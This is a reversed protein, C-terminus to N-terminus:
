ETWELCGLCESSSSSVAKRMSASSFCSRYERRLSYSSRSFYRLWKLSICRVKSSSHLAPKSCRLLQISSTRCSKAQLRLFMFLLFSYRSRRPYSHPSSFSSYSLFSLMKSAMKKSTCRLSRLVKRASIWFYVMLGQSFAMALERRVSWYVQLIELWSRGEGTRKM